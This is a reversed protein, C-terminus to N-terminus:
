PADSSEKGCCTESDAAACRCDRQDTELTAIITLLNTEVTRNMETLRTHGDTQARSILARTDDLQTRHQPLFEPGTLFVPCTLCAERFKTPASSPGNM